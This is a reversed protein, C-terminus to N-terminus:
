FDFKWLYAKLPMIRFQVYGDLIANGFLFCFPNRSMEVKRVFRFEFQLCPSANWAGHVLGLWYKLAVPFLKPDESLLRLEGALLIIAAVGKRNSLIERDRRHHRFQDWYSIIDRKCNRGKRLEVRRVCLTYTSAM